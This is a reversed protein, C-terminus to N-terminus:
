NFLKNLVNVIFSSTRPRKDILPKGSFKEYVLIINSDNRLLELLQKDSPYMLELGNKQKVMWMQCM